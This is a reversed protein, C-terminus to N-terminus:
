FSSKGNENFAKGAGYRLAYPRLIQLFATIQGLLVMAAYIMAYTMAEDKSITWGESTRKVRRFVPVDKLKPKLPLPLHNHGPPIELQSLAEPSTLSPAAFAQDDFMLGLLMVHPSFVLSSDYIIEPV